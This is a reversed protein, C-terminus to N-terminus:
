MESIYRYIDTYPFSFIDTYPFSFIDTYNCAAFHGLLYKVSQGITKLHYLLSQNKTGESPSRNYVSSDFTVKIWCTIQKGMNTIFWKIPQLFKQMFWEEEWTSGSLYFYHQWVYQWPFTVTASSLNWVLDDMASGEQMSKKLIYFDIYIRATWCWPGLWCNWFLCKHDGLDGSPKSFWTNLFLIIVYEYWLVLFSMKISFSSFRFFVCGGLM